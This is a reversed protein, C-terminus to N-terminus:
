PTPITFLAASTPSAAASGIVYVRSPFAHFTISHGHTRQAVGGVVLDPLTVVHQLALTTPNYFRVQSEPLQPPTTIRNHLTAIEYSSWCAGVIEFPQDGGLFEWYTMDVLPDESIRFVNGASTIIADPFVWLDNGLPYQGGPYPWERVFTTAEAHGDYRRLKASPGIDLAYLPREASFFERGRAPGPVLGGPYVLENAHDFLMLPGAQGPYVRPSSTGRAELVPTGFDFTSLQSLATVWATTVRTSGHVIYVFEETDSVGIATPTVTLPIVAESPPTPWYPALMRIRPPNVSAIAFQGSYPGPEVDVINGDILDPPPLVVTVMVTDTATGAPGTVELEAVYTGVKEAFFTPTLSAAPM